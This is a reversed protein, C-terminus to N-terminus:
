PNYAPKAMVVAAAGSSSWVLRTTPRTTDPAASISSRAASGATLDTEPLGKKLHARRKGLERGPPLKRRPPTCPHLTSGDVVRQIHSLMQHM